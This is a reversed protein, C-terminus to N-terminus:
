HLHQVSILLDHGLTLDTKMRGGYSSFSGHIETGVIVKGEVVQDTGSAGSM